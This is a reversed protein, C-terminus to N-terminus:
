VTVGPKGMFYDCGGANRAARDCVGSYRIPALCRQSKRHWNCPHKDCNQWLTRVKALYKIHDQEIKPLHSFCAYENFSIYRINWEPNTRYERVCDPCPRRNRLEERNCRQCGAMVTLNEVVGVYHEYGKPYDETAHLATTTPRGCRECVPKAIKLREVAARYRASRWWIRLQARHDDIAHNLDPTM